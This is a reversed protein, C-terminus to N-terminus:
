KLFDNLKKQYKLNYLIDSEKAWSNIPTQLRTSIYKL